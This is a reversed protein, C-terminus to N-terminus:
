LGQVFYITLRTCTIINVKMIYQIFQCLNPIKTFYEPIENPYIIGVNNVLVKGNEIKNIKRNRSVWINKQKSKKEEFLKYLEFHTLKIVM